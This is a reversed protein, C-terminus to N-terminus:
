MTNKEEIAMADMAGIIIVAAAIIIKM